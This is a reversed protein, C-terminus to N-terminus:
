FKASNAQKFRERIQDETQVQAHLNRGNFDWNLPNIRALEPWQASCVNCGHVVRSLTIDYTLSGECAGCAPCRANPNIVKRKAMRLLVLDLLRELFRVM